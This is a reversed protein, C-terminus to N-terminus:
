MFGGGGGGLGGGGLGGGGLGGGLGGPQAAQSAPVEVDVAKADPGFSNQRLAKILQEVRMHVDYTTSIIIAPRTNSFPSMTSNGGLAEWSDPVITTQILNILSDYDGAVNICELWYIRSLLASDAAEMTTITVINRHVNLTCDLDKLMLSIYDGAAVEKLDLTVPTDQDLGIEELAVTDIVMPLEIMKSIAQVADVLPTEILSQSIPQALKETMSKMMTDDVDIWRDTGIGKHVLAHHDATIVMAEDEVTAKLGLPQLMKRLATRVPEEAMQYRVQSALDLQAFEVARQDIIVPVGLQQELLGPLQELGGSVELSSPQDLTGKIKEALPGTAAAPQYQREWIMRQPAEGNGGPQPSQNPNGVVPDDVPTAIQAVLPESDMAVSVTTKSQADATDPGPLVMLASITGAAVLGGVLNWPTMIGTGKVLLPELLHSDIPPDPLTGEGLSSLLPESATASEASTVTSAGAAAFAIIPVIGRRRLRAALLRKGRQLRGRVAGLTTQFQEAMRGLSCGEYLHMIIASRYHEPLAALEEDLVLADHQQSIKTLPDDDTVVPEGMPEHVHRRRDLTASAARQAVRHLWGPLCEPQRIKKSHRALYLFTSQFADDADDRTRCRRRCVSLVLVSYRQILTTLAQHHQDRTWADLLESDSLSAFYADDPADSGGDGDPTDFGSDGDARVSCVDTTRIRNGTTEDRNQM